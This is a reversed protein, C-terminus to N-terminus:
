QSKNQKELYEIFGNWAQDNTLIKVYFDPNSLYWHLFAIAIDKAQALEMEQKIDM